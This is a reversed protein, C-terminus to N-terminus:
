GGAEDALVPNTWGWEKMSAALQAIQAEAPWAVEVGERARMIRGRSLPSTSGLFFNFVLLACAAASVAVM